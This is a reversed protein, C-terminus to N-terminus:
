RDDLEGEIDNKKTRKTNNGITMETPNTNSIYKRYEEKIEIDYDKDDILVQAVIKEGSCVYIIGESSKKLQYTHNHYEFTNQKNQIAQFVTEEFNKADKTPISISKYKDFYEMEHEKKVAFVATPSNEFNESWGQFKRTPKGGNKELFTGDDAQKIFHHGNKTTRFLVLYEDEQLKTDGLLRVFPFLELISSVDKEFNDEDNEIPFICTDVELAYGGCNIYFNFDEEVRDSLMKSFKNKSEEFLEGSILSKIHLYKRNLVNVKCVEEIEQEVVTLDPIDIKELLMRRVLVEIIVETNKKKFYDSENEYEIYEKESQTLEIKRKLEMLSDVTIDKDDFYVQKSKDSITKNYLSFIVKIKRLTENITAEIIDERERNFYDWRRQFDKEIQERIKKNIKDKLKKEFDM